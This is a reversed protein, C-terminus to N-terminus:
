RRPGHVQRNRKRIWTAMDDRESPEDTANATKGAVPEIPAPANSPKKAPTQSASQAMAELKAEIKGIETIAREPRLGYIRQAEARNQGLFYAIDPGIESHIIAQAMADSIPTNGLAVEDYDEYKERAKVERESYLTRAQQFDRIAQNRAEEQRRTSERENAFKEAERRAVARQYSDWDNNFDELKPEAQAQPQPQTQQYQQQQREFAMRKFTDIDRRAEALKMRSNKKVKGVIEDVEAQSYNRPTEAPKQEPEQPQAPEPVVQSTQQETVEVAPAESM